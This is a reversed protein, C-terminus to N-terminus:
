VEASFKAESKETLLNCGNLEEPARETLYKRMSSKKKGLEAKSIKVTKVLTCSFRCRFNYYWGASYEWFPLILETNM